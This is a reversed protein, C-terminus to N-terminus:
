WSAWAVLLKKKGAFSGLSIPRGELDPLTLEPETLSQLAAAREGAPDAMAAGGAEAEVVTPRHLAAGVAALDVFGDEVLGHPDAVPVCVDGRCLGRDELKWGTAAELDATQVLLRDGRAEAEVERAQDTVVVARM